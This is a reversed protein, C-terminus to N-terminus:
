SLISWPHRDILIGDPLAPWLTEPNFTPGYRLLLHFRYQGRVQRYYDPYPGVLTSDPKLQARITKAVARAETLTAAENTDQVTFRVLEQLPPYGYCERETLEAQYFSTLNKSHLTQWVYHESRYTQAVVSRAGGTLFWRMTTWVDEAARYEPLSLETDPLVAAVLALKTFDLYRWAARSGLILQARSVQAVRSPAVEGELTVTAVHPWLDKLERELRELGSGVYRLNSGGCTPCPLPIPLTTGCHYCRLQNTKANWVLTRQCTACRPTFGCDRCTVATASGRRNLYLFVQGGQSVARTVQEQLARSLVGLNGSPRETTLNILELKPTPQSGRVRWSLQGRQAQWWLMVSPAPSLYALSAGSLESLWGAVELGDYRPNQDTQKYNANEAYDVIIGGLNHFPLFLSARTGIITQAQGTRIALWAARQETTKTQSTINTLHGSGALAQYWVQAYFLEPVLILVQQKRALVQQVLAAVVKLRGAAQNFVIVTPNTAHGRASRSPSPTPALFRRNPLFPLSSKLVTGWAVGYHQAVRRTLALQLPTAFGAALRAAVQKLTVQVQTSAKLNVIIGPCAQNRFPVTVLDGVQYAEGAPLQYDFVQATRPLRQLLVVEAIHKAHPM